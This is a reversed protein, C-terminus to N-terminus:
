APIYYARYIFLGIVTLCAILLATRPKDFQIALLTFLLSVAAALAGAIFPRAEGYTLPPDPRVYELRFVEALARIVIILLVANRAVKVHPVLRAEDKHEMEALVGLAMDRETEPVAIRIERAQDRYAGMRNAYNVNCVIVDIGDIRERRFPQYWRMPKLGSRNNIGCIMTVQHGMEVLYKSVDYSRTGGTGEITVLHQHIYIIRM